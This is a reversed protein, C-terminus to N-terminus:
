CLKLFSTGPIRRGAPILSSPLLSLPLEVCTVELEAPVLGLLEVKNEPEAEPMGLSM